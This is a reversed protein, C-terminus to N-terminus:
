LKDFRFTLSIKIIKLSKSDKLSEDFLFVNYEVQEHTFQPKKASTPTTESANKFQGVRAMFGWNVCSSTLYVIEKLTYTQNGAESLALPM